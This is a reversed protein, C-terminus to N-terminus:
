IKRLLSFRLFEPNFKNVAAIFVKITAASLLAAIPEKIFKRTATAPTTATLRKKTDEKATHIIGNEKALMMLEKGCVTTIVRHNHLRIPTEAIQM